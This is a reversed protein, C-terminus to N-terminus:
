QPRYRDPHAAAFPALEASAAGIRALKPFRATDLGWRTANYLQPVLCFDALGPTDGHCFTGATDALMVEVADLGAGIFKQMWASRVADDGHTLELVHAVVGTNCVPHIDMAIAYALARVRQRELPDRPLFGASRTEDLYEIIAVSQTLLHGDIALTPVLGQPNKELYDPAKHAKALLDVQESRFDIGLMHLAIRVRYSASSRWYDHLVIQIM